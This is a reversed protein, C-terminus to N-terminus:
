PHGADHGPAREFLSPVTGVHRRQCPGEPIQLYELDLADHIRRMRSLDDIEWGEPTEPPVQREDM